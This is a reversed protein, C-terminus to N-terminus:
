LGNKEALYKARLEAAIKIAAQSGDALVTIILSYHRTNTPEPKNLRVYEYVYTARDVRCVNGDHGFYVTWAPKLLTEGDPWEEIRCGNWDEHEFKAAMQEAISRDTTAGVIGYGSYEGYTVIYIM